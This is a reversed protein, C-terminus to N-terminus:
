TSIKFNIGAPLLLKVADFLSCFYREKLWPVMRLQEASLLPTQDLVATVPKLLEPQECSQLSLIMGQRGRNGSGFPVMVRCGPAAQMGPPLFYTFEKDFHYATNEVAVGVATMQEM